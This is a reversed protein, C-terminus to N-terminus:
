RMLDRYLKKPGPDDRPFLRRIPATVRSAWDYFNPYNWSLYTNFRDIMGYAQKVSYGQYFKKYLDQM